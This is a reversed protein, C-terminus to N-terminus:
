SKGGELPEADSGYSHGYGYGYGYGYSTNRNDLKTVVGGFIKGGGAELRDLAQGTMRLKGSNAEIVMVVGDVAGAILPADALGLVPPADIVIHDYHDKLYEVLKAFRDGALLEGANPPKRGSALLDFSFPAAPRVLRQWDDEGRLVNSLGETLPSKLYRSIGSNRMDADVILIRDGREALIKALAVSSLSKGEAPRTSCVMIVKPVGAESLFGLNTVLALYAEYLESSKVQLDEALDSEESRPISGLLPIGLVEAVQSPDRVSQDLKERLLIIGGSVAGGLLLSLLLNRFLNPEVPIRPVEATDVIAINNEGVGAVGIERYRQLLSNYLARNTDVERQLINYQVSDRRQGVFEDRLADVRERLQAETAAAERYRAQIAGGSESRTRRIEADLQEIQETLAVVTPYQEGATARLRAREAALEARQQQLPQVAAADAPQLSSGAANVASQAAIRATTAQALAENLAQLDRAVLTQSATEESDGDPSSQLAFLNRNAAYTILEREADELRERLQALRTELFQRAENTAGFRRALNSAIYANAWENAIKASLAAAPSKFQIDVLNSTGVPAINVNTLLNQVVQEEFNDDNPDLDFAEAFEPTTLLNADRTVQEALSRAQLLEYQTEYYQADLVQDQTEVGEVATVNSEVRSIEIRTSALYKPTILLTALVGLLLSAALVSAILIKNNKVTQWVREAAPVAMDRLSAGEDDEYYM